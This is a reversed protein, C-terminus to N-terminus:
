ILLRLKLGDLPAAQRKRGAIYILHLLTTKSHRVLVNNGAKEQVSCPSDHMAVHM